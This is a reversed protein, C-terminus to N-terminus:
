VARIRDNQIEERQESSEVLVADVLVAIDQALHDIRQRRAARGYIGAARGDVTFVGLCPHLDGGEAALPLGRFRRQAVWEDPDRRVNKRIQVWEKADTTGAIGVLDGVRGLAPKLVWGDDDKWLV